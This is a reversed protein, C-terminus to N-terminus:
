FGLHLRLGAVWAGPNVGGPHDFWQLNPQLAVQDNLQWSYVAEVMTEPNPARLNVRGFGLSFQDQPRQPLWGTVAVGAAIFETVVNVRAPSTGALVFAGWQQQGSTWRTEGVLYGGSTSPGASPDAGHSHHWVGVKVDARPEAGATAAPWDREVEAISLAGNSFM